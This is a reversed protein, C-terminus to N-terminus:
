ANNSAERILKRIFASFSMDSAQALQKAKELDAVSISIHKNILLDTM